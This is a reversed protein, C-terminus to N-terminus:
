INFITQIFETGEGVPFEGDKIWTPYGAEIDFTFLGISSVNDYIAYIYIIGSNQVCSLIWDINVPEGNKLATEIQYPQQTFQGLDIDFPGTLEYSDIALCTAWVSGNVLYLQKLFFEGTVDSDVSNVLTATATGPGDITIRIINTIASKKSGNDVYIFSGSEERYLSSSGKQAFDSIDNNYFFIEGTAINLSVFAMSGFDDVVAYIYGDGGNCVAPQNPFPIYNFPFNTFNDLSYILGDSAVGYLGPLTNSGGSGTGLGAAVAPPAVPTNKVAEHLAQRQAQAWVQLSQRRVDEMSKQRNM